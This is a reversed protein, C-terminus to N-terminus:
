IWFLEHAEHLSIVRVGWCPRNIWCGRTLRRLFWMFPDLYSQRKVGETFDFPSQILAHRHLITEILWGTLLYFTICFVLYSALLLFCKDCFLLLFLPTTVMNVLLPVIDLTTRVFISSSSGKLSNGHIDLIAVPSNLTRTWLLFYGYFHRM